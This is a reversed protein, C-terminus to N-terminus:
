PPDLGGGGGGGGGGRRGEPDVSTIFPYLITLKNSKNDSTM